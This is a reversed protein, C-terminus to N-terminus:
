VYGKRNFLQVTESKRIQRQKSWWTRVSGEFDELSGNNNFVMDVDNIEDIHNEVSHMVGCPNHRCIKVIIGGRSRIWLLDHAYRVDPIVIPFRANVDADYMEWFRKTFFDTGMFTMMDKTMQIMADRPRIGWRPDVIEKEPGELQTETFGYLAYVASKLPGALRKVQFDNENCLIKAFTDKGVRSRGLVGIVM